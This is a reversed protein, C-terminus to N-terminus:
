DGIEIKLGKDYSLKIAEVIRMHEYSMEPTNITHRKKGTTIDHIYAVAKVMSSRYGSDEYTPQRDALAKVGSYAFNGVQKTEITRSNDNLTVRKDAFLLDIEFIHYHYGGRDRDTTKVTANHSNFFLVFEYTYAGAENNYVRNYAYVTRPVGCLCTLTDILTVGNHDLGKMYYANVALLCSSDKAIVQRLQEYSPDFRRQFNVVLNVGNEGAIRLIERIEETHLALPKEAFITKAARHRIINSIVEYHANDPTCVSIVDHRATFIENLDSTSAGMEWQRRFAAAKDANTDCVIDLSFRGDKAYAGAHTYIASDDQIKDADYGGAIRGAGIIAVTLKKNL